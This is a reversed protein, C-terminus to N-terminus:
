SLRGEGNSAFQLFTPQSTSSWLPPFFMGSTISWKSATNIPHFSLHTLHTILSYTNPSLLTLLATRLFSSPFGSVLRLLRLNFPLLTGPETWSRRLNLCCLPAEDMAPRFPSQIRRILEWIDRVSVSKDFDLSCFTSVLQNPFLVAKNLSKYRIPTWVTSIRSLNLKKPHHPSLSPSNCYAHMARILDASQLSSSCRGSNHVTLGWM